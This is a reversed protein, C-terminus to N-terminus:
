AGEASALVIGIGRGAGGDPWRDAQTRWCGIADEFNGVVSFGAATVHLPLCEEALCDFWAQAGRCQFVKWSARL